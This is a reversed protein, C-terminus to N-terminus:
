RPHAFPRQGTRERHAWKSAGEDEGMLSGYVCGGETTERDCEKSM